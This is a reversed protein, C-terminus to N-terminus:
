HPPLPPEIGFKQLERRARLWEFLRPLDTLANPGETERRERLWTLHEPDDIQEHEVIALLRDVAKPNLKAWKLFADYEAQERERASELAALEREDEQKLKRENREWSVIDYWCGAVRILSFLYLLLLINLAWSTATQGIHPEFESRFWFLAAILAGQWLAGLLEKKLDTRSLIM